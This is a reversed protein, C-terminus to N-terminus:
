DDLCAVYGQEDRHSQKSSNLLNMLTANLTERNLMEIMSADTYLVSLHLTQDKLRAITKPTFPKTVRKLYTVIDEYDRQFVILAFTDDDYRFLIDTENKLETLKAATIVLVRDAKDVSFSHKLMALEDISILAMSVKSNQLNNLKSYNELESGGGQQTLVGTLADHKDVTIVSLYQRRMYMSTALAAGILTLLAIAYTFFAKLRIIEEDITVRQEVLKDLQSQLKNNASAFLANLHALQNENVAQDYSDQYSVARNLEEVALQHNGQQKAIMSKLRHLTALDSALDYEFFVDYLQTVLVNGQNLKGQNIYSEALLLQAQRYNFDASIGSMLELAQTLILEEKAYDKQEKYPFSEMVKFLNLVSVDGAKQCAARASNLLKSFEVYDKQVILWYITSDLVNCKLVDDDTRSAIVQAKDLWYKSTKFTGAEINLEAAVLLINVWDVLPVEEESLQDAYNLYQFAQVYDGLIQSLQIAYKYYLVLYKPPMDQPKMADIKRKGEEYKGAIVTLKLHIFAHQIKFEPTLEDASIEKLLKFAQDSDSYALEGAKRIKEGVSQELPREANSNAQVNFLVSLSVFFYFIYKM